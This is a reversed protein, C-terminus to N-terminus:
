KIEFSDFLVVESDPKTTDFYYSDIAGRKTDFISFATIENSALYPVNEPLEKKNPSVPELGEPDGYLAYNNMNWTDKIIYYPDNKNFSTPLTFRADKETYVGGYSNGVNSTQLYNLGNETVFRNWLHSHGNIVLNVNYQEFLPELQNKIFDDEIPYDYTMMTQGTIPYKVKKPVPDTFAPISNNGLSHNDFHYMVIKYKANRFEDSKLEKELFEYQRSGKVVPEFIFQGFGYTDEGMGPIESYKGPTGINYLRWIRNVELVIVRADAISFAYYHNYDKEDSSKGFIEDYTITNFSNNLIFERQGEEDSIDAKNDLLKNAYNRPKPNNFQESLSKKESYVGMYEHNGLATFVPVNQLLPAGKYTVGNISHEANGQLVRFFANDSDFWMYASDPVDVLDGDIFVAGIDPVTEFAKEINAACMEKNQHDSTILIKLDSDAMNLSNLSYTNSIKDDSRVFYAEKANEGNNIPLGDVTAMHRYIDRSISADDRTKETDGGRMRSLKVTDADINRKMNPLVVENKECPELTFWVVDISTETPNMLIPDTYMKSVEFDAYISEDYDEDIIIEEPIDEIVEKEDYVNIVEIEKEEVTDTVEESKSFINKCIFIIAVILAIAIFAAAVLTKRNKNYSKLNINM